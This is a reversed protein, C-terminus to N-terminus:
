SGHATRAAPVDTSMRHLWWSFLFLVATVAVLIGPFTLVRWNVFAAVALAVLTMTGGALEWKWAVVLGVLWVGMMALLIYDDVILPRSPEGEDGILHAVIFFGWVLLIPM